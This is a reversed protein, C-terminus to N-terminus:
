LSVFLAKLLKFIIYVAAAAAAAALIRGFPNRPVFMSMSVVGALLGIAMFPAIIFGCVALGRSLRRCPQEQAAVPRAYDQSGPKAAICDAANFFISEDGTEQKGAKGTM